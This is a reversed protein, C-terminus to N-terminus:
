TTPPYPPPPLSFRPRIVTSLDGEARCGGLPLEVPVVLNVLLSFEPRSSSYQTVLPIATSSLSRFSKDRIENLSIFRFYFILIGRVKREEEQEEADEVTEAGVVDDDDADDSTTAITAEQFNSIINIAPPRPSHSARM